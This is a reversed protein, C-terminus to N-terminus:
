YNSLINEPHNAIFVSEDYAQHVFKIYGSNGIIIAWDWLYSNYCPWKTGLLSKKQYANSDWIWITETEIRKYSPLLIGRLKRLSLCEYVSNDGFYTYSPIGECM